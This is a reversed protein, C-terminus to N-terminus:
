MVWLRLLIGLLIGSHMRWPVLFAIRVCIRVCLSRCLAISLYQLIETGSSTDCWVAVPSGLVTRTCFVGACWHFFVGAFSSSLWGTKSLHTLFVTSFFCCLFSSIWLLFVLGSGESRAFVWTAWPCDWTIVLSHWACPKCSEACCLWCGASQLSLRCTPVVRWWVCISIMLLELFWIGFYGCCGTLPWDTVSLSPEWLACPWFNKYNRTLTIKLFWSILCVCTCVYWLRQTETVKDRWCPPDSATPNCLTRCPTFSVKGLELKTLSNEKKMTLHM